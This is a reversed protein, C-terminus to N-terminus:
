SSWFGMQFPREIGKWQKTFHKVSVVKGLPEKDVFVLIDGPKLVGNLSKETVEKVVICSRARDVEAVWGLKSSAVEVSTFPNLVAVPPPGKSGTPAKDFAMAKFEGLSVDGPTQASELLAAVQTTSPAKGRVETIASALQHVNLGGTGDWDCKIFTAEVANEIQELRKAHKLIEVKAAAARYRSIKQIQTAARNKLAHEQLHQLKEEEVFLQHRRKAEVKKRAELQRQKAQLKTAANEMEIMFGVKAAEEEKKSLFISAASKRRALSQLKVAARDMDRHADNVEAELVMTKSDFTELQHELRAVEKTKKSRLSFKQEVVVTDPFMVKKSGSLSLPHHMTVLLRGSPSRHPSSQKTSNPSQYKRRQNVIEKTADKRVKQISSKLDQLYGPSRRRDEDTLFFMMSTPTQPPPPRTGLM